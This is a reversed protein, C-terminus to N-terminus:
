QLPVSLSTKKMEMATSNTWTYPGVRSVVSSLCMLLRWMMQFIFLQTVLVYMYICIYNTLPALKRTSVILYTYVCMGQCVPDCKHVYEIVCELTLGCM